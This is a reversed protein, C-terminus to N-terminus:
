KLTKHFGHDVMVPLTGRTGLVKRPRPPPTPTSTATEFPVDDVPEPLKRVPKPKRPPDIRTSSDPVVNALQAETELEPHAPEPSPVHVSPEAPQAVLSEKAM